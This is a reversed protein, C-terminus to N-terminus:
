SNENKYNEIENLLHIDLEDLSNVHFHAEYEDSLKINKFSGKFVRLTKFGEKKLNVFDKYPNDGIYLLEEPKAQEWKLIKHFIYTSPKAKELGYNHSPIAKKFYSNLGLAEIKLSQVMKNGDTVLYKPFSKFRV